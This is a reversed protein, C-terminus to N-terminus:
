DSITLYVLSLIFLFIAFTNLISIHDFRTTFTERSKVISRYVDSNQSSAYTIRLWFAEFAELPQMHRKVSRFSLLMELSKLFSCMVINLQVKKFFCLPLFICPKEM